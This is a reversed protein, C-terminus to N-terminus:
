KKPAFHDDICDPNIERAPEKGLLLRGNRYYEDINGSSLPPYFLDIETTDIYFNPRDVNYKDIFEREERPIANFYSLSAEKLEKNYRLLSPGFQLVFSDVNEKILQIYKSLPNSFHFLIKVDKELLPTIWKLFIQSSYSSYIFRDVNEFIILGIDIEVNLNDLKVEDLTIKEIVNSIRNSQENYYLLIKPEVRNLFRKKQIEIYKRKYEKKTARPLYIEAMIDNESMIGLPVKQFLYDGSNLLYYNRFHLVENGIKRTFVIVSKNNKYTYLYSLLPISHLVPDPISLVLNKREFTNWFTNLFLNTLPSMNKSIIPNNPTAKPNPNYTRIEPIRKYWQEM